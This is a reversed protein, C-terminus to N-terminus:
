IEIKVATLIDHKYMKWSKVKKANEFATKLEPPSSFDKCNKEERDTYYLVCSTGATKEKHSLSNFIQIFAEAQLENGPCNIEKLATCGQMNLTKLNNGSCDVKKLVNLGSLNLNTLKNTMCELKELATLNSVDLETLSNGSCNLKKLSNCGKTKLETIHNSSCILEQLFPLGQVDIATLENSFVNLRIIKGTLRVETGNATLNEWVHKGPFVPVTCGTVKVDSGDSTEVQIRINLKHPNLTLIATNSIIANEKRNKDGSCGMPLTIVLLYATLTIIAKWYVSQRIQLKLDAATGSKKNTKKM